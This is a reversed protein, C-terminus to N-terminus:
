KELKKTYANSNEKIIEKIDLYVKKQPIDVKTVKALIRTGLKIKQKSYKCLLNKKTTDVAFSLLFDGTSDLLCKVNNDLKIYVNDKDLDLIIGTFEEEKHENM